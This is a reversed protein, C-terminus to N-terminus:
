KNGIRHISIRVDGSFIEELLERSYPAYPDPEGYLLEHVSVELTQSIKKLQMPDMIRRGTTWGHITPKSIGTKRSLEALSLKKEKMLRLINKGTSM